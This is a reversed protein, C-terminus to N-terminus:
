SRKGGMMYIFSEGLKERMLNDVAFLTDPNQYRKPIVRVMKDNGFTFIYYKGDSIFCDFASYKVKTRTYNRTIVVGDDLFVINTLDRVYPSTAYVTSAINTVNRKLMKMYLLTLGCPFGLCLFAGVFIVIIKEYTDTVEGYWASIVAAVSAIVSLILFIVFRGVKLTGFKEHYCTSAETYDSLKIKYTLEIPKEEM